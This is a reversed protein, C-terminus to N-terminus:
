GANGKRDLYFQYISDKVNSVVSELPQTADIVKCHEVVHQLELYQSRKTELFEPSFEGKRAFVVEGPADLVILLDPERLTHTLIFGHIRRKLSNNVNETQMDHHYYDYVYHRDFLVIVGRKVNLWAVFQRYWEEFIRNTLGVSKRIKRIVWKRIDKLTRTATKNAPLAESHDNQEIFDYNGSGLGSATTEPDYGPLIRGSIGKNKKRTEWWRTTPLMVNSAEVNMGMYIYKIPLKFTAELQKAVTTKGVGDPGILTVTFM